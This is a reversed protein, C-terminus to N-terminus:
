PRKVTVQSLTTAMRQWRSRSSASLESRTAFFAADIQAREIAADFSPTAHDPSRAYLDLLQSRELEVDREMDGARPHGDHALRAAAQGRIAHQRFRLDRGFSKAVGPVDTSMREVAAQVDREIQARTELAWAAVPSPDFALLDVRRGSARLTEVAHEAWPGAIWDPGTVHVEDHFDGHLVEDRPAIRCLRRRPVHLLARTYQPRGFDAMAEADLHYRNELETADQGLPLDRAELVARADADLTAELLTTTEVPGFRGGEWLEVAITALRGFVEAEGTKAAHAMASHVSELVRSVDSSGLRFVERRRLVAREVEEPPLARVADDYAAVDLYLLPTARTALPADPVVGWGAETGHLAGLQRGEPLTRWDHFWVVREGAATV